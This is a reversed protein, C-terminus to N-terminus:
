FISAKVEEFRAESLSKRKAESQEPVSSAEAFQFGRWPLDRLRAQLLPRAAEAAMHLALLFSDPDIRQPLCDLVHGAEFHCCFCMSLSRAKDGEGAEFRFLIEEQGVKTFNLKTPDLPRLLLDVRFETPRKKLHRGENLQAMFGYEGAIVWTECATVDYRFLGRSMRDQGQLLTKLFFDSPPEDVGPPSVKPSIETLKNQNELTSYRPWIM